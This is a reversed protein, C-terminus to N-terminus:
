FQFTVDAGATWGKLGPGWLYSAGIGAWKVKWLQELFDLALRGHFENISRTGLGDKLGGFLDTHSLYGGTRLEHDFVQLGLPVDIAIKTEFTGSDGDASIQPNTSHLTRTDFFTPDASLTVVTRHWLFRYQVDLSAAGTWTDVKWNVLNPPVAQAATAGTVAGGPTYSQTTQGYLGMVTPGISVRDSLWIRAGGGFELAYGTITSLDGELVPVHLRNTAKFKGMNGQLRPQWGIDLSGLPRPAGIDGAGGLKTFHLDADAGSSPAFKGTSRFQGGSVGYDGGLIQLAQIRSGVATRIANQQQPTIQGVGPLPLGGLLTWAIATGPRM